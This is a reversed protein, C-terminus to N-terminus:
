IIKSGIKIIVPCTDRGEPHGACLHIDDRIGKPLKKKSISAYHEKCIDQIVPNVEATLLHNSRRGYIDTKGWGTVSLIGPVSKEVHLCAPRVFANLVAPCDLKIL